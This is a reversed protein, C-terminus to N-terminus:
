LEMLKADANECEQDLNQSEEKIEQETKAARERQLTLQQYKSSERRIDETIEYKKNM